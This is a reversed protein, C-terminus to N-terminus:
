WAASPASRRGPRRLPSRRPRRSAAGAGGASQRERWEVVLDAKPTSIRIQQVSWREPTQTNPARSFLIAIDTIDRTSYLVIIYGTCSVAQNSSLSANRFFTLHNQLNPTITLTISINRWKSRARQEVPNGCEGPDDAPAPFREDTTVTSNTRAPFCYLVITQSIKKPIAAPIRALFM